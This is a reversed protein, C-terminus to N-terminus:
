IPKIAHDVNILKTEFPLFQDDGSFKSPFARNFSESSGFINNLWPAGM